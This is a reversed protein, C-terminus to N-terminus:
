PMAAAGPTGCRGRRATGLRAGPELPERGCLEVGDHGGVAVGIALHLEVRGPRTAELAPLRVVPACPVGRRDSGGIALNATRQGDGVDIPVPDEIQEGAAVAAPGCPGRRRSAGARDEILCRGTHRGPRDDVLIRDTARGHEAEGRGAPRIAARVAADAMGKSRAWRDRPRWRDVATSCTPSQSGVPLALRIVSSQPPCRAFPTPGPGSGAAPTSRAPRCRRCGRRSRTM